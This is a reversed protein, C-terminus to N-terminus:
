VGKAAEAAFRQELDKVSQGPRFSYEVLDDMKILSRWLNPYYKRLTRLADLRQLPCCWCSVRSFREYLGDWDFGHDYCYRLAMKETIGWDFLPHAMNPKINKHRKPEDYAIGIYLTYDGCNHLYKATLETKFIRTCWRVWMRPWGYGRKGKNKGRTKEHYAFYYLFDYPPKLRTIPRSISKEVKTIHEYMEPFEMGTDCFIIDDIPMGRELMMLLMATSDKGGSFQVIHKM